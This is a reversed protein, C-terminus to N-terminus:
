AGLRRRRHARVEADTMGGQSPPLGSLQINEDAVWGMRRLIPLAQTYQSHYGNDFTIM